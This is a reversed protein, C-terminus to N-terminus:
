ASLEAEVGLYGLLEKTREVVLETEGALQSEDGPYFFSTQVDSSGILTPKSLYTQDVSEGALNGDSIYLKLASENISVPPKIDIKLGSVFPEGGDAAPTLINSVFLEAKM